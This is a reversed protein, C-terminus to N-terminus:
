FVGELVLGASRPGAQPAVKARSTLVLYAGAAAAVVGVGLAVNSVNAFLLARTSEDHSTSGCSQPPAACDKKAQDNTSLALGGFTAGTALAAVGVGLAIFGATRRTGHEEEAARQEPPPVVAAAELEPVDVRVERASDGISVDTAWSKKDPASADVRHSGPDIPLSDWASSPRELGDVKVVLGPVRAAQPVVISLHSLKSALAREHTQAMEVRDRRGVRESRAEVERFEAWATAIKGLAEHCLALNLLTGTGPDLKMSAELKPCAEAYRHEDMLAKGQTFLAEAAAPDNAEAARAPPPVITALVLAFFAILAVDTRAATPRIM